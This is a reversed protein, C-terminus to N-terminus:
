LQTLLKDDDINKFARKKSLISIYIHVYKQIKYLVNSLFVFIFEKLM